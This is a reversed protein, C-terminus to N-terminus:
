AAECCLEVVLMAVPAGAGSATRGRMLVPLRRWLCHAFSGGLVLKCPRSEPTHRSPLVSPVLCLVAPARPQAPQAVRPCALSNVLKKLTSCFEFSSIEGSGDGDLVQRRSAGLVDGGAHGREIPGGALANGGDGSARGGAGVWGNMGSDVEFPAGGTSRTALPTQQWWALESTISGASHTTTRGWRSVRSLVRVDGDLICM